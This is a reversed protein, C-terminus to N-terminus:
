WAASCGKVDTEMTMTFVKQRTKWMKGNYIYIYYLYKCYLSYLLLLLFM